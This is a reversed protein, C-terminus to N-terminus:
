TLNVLESQSVEDVRAGGMLTKFVRQANHVERTAHEVDYRRLLVAMRISFANNRVVAVKRLPFGCEAQHRETVVHAMQRERMGGFLFDKGLSFIVFGERL